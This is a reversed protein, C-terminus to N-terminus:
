VYLLCTLDLVVLRFPHLLAMVTTHPVIGSRLSQAQYSRGRTLAQSGAPNPHPNRYLLRLASPQKQALAAAVAAAEEEAAKRLARLKKLKAMHRDGDGMGRSQQMPVKLSTRRMCLAM